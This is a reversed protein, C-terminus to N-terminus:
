PFLLGGLGKKKKKRKQNTPIKEKKCLIPNRSGREAGKLSMECCLIPKVDHGKHTASIFIAYDHM